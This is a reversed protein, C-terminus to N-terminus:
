PEDNKKPKAEVVPIAVTAPAVRGEKWDPFTMTVKAMGLGAEDPVLAPCLFRANPTDRELVYKRTVEKQGGEKAPFRIEVVPRVDEPVLNLSMLAFTGPGLGPTGLQFSVKESDEGRRFKGGGRVDLTLPGGFHVVPADQPRDSFTLRNLQRDIWAQHTVRQDNTDGFLGYCKPDLKIFLEGVVGDRAQRWVKDVHDQWEEPTGVPPIPGKWASPDVKRRYEQQSVVLGTHTLGGVSIDGAEIKRERVWAPYDSPKFAPAEIRKGAETLDGNGNRDVYLTDGDLVLWARDKAKPGFVLLCYRPSKGQYKPEKRIRRDIKALDPAGAARAEKDPVPPNEAKTEAAPQGTIFQQAFMAPQGLLGTGVVAGAVLLLVTTIKLKTVFMAKMVGETLAAVKASILGAAAAQGAAVRTAVKITASVVSPAVCACALNEALVGALTGGSVALGHRALRKALLIRARALRAALTGEPCGLQRAAEKYSKGELDCLVVPLRYKDPLRSLEQDLMPQLDHWLHREVAEPEPMETVQKERCKRKITLARAKLATKYAVGYLWGAVGESPVISAAKRVLVLFTAQFSDEADHHNGLVRRCVSWVMPGHRQVLAALAAEDRHCLYCELLQGDTLGAGDRLLTVRRLHQLVKRM